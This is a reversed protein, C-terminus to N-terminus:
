QRQEGYLPSGAWFDNAAEPDGFELKVTGDPRKELAMLRLGAKEAVAKAHEIEACSIRAAKSM